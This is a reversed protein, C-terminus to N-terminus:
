VASFQAFVYLCVSPRIAAYLTQVRGVDPRTENM